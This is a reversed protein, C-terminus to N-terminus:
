KSLEYAWNLRQELESIMQNAADKAAGAPPDFLQRVKMPVYSKVAEFRLDEEPIFDSWNSYEDKIRFGGSPGVGMQTLIMFVSNIHFIIDTDFVTYDSVIGLLKKVSLLISDTNDM